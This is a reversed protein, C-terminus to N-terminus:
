QTSVTIHLFVRYFPHHTIGLDCLNIFSRALYLLDDYGTRKLPFKTERQCNVTELQWNERGWAGAHSHISKQKIPLPEFFRKSSDHSQNIFLGMGPLPHPKKM